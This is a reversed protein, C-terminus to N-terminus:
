TFLAFFYVQYFNLSIVIINHNPSIPTTMILKCTLRWSHNRFWPWQYPSPPPQFQITRIFPLYHGFANLSPWMNEAGEHMYNEDWYILGLSFSSQAKGNDWTFCQLSYSQLMTKCKEKKSGNIFYLSYYYLNTMDFLFNRQRNRQQM